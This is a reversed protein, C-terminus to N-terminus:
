KFRNLYKQATLIRELMRSFDVAIVEDFAPQYLKPLLPKMINNVYGRVRDEELDRGNM